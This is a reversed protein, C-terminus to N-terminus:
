IIELSSELHLQQLPAGDGALVPQDLSVQELDKGAQGVAAKVSDDDVRGVADPCVVVPAQRFGWPLALMMGAMVIFVRALVAVLEACSDESFAKAEEASTPDYEEEAIRISKVAEAFLSKHLSIADPTGREDPM